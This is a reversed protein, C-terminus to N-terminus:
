VADERWLARPRLLVLRRQQVERRRGGQPRHRLHRRAGDRHDRWRPTSAEDAASKLKDYADRAQSVSKEAFERVAAPVEYSPTPFSFADFPVTGAKPAKKATTTTTM